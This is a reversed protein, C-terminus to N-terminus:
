KNLNTGVFAEAEKIKRDGSLNALFKKIKENDLLLSFLERAPSLISFDNNLTFTNLQEGVSCKVDGASFFTVNSFVSTFMATHCFGVSKM